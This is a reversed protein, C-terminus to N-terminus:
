EIVLRFGMDPAGISESVLQESSCRVENASNDFSGGRVARKNSTTSFRDFLSRFFGKNSSSLFPDQTWEWTNGSMDYLGQQNSPYYDVATIGNSIVENRIDTYNAEEASISGSRTGYAVNKGGARCAYEWEIGTPLRYSYESKENLRNLFNQIEIWSMNSVPIKEPINGDLGSIMMVDGWQKKTVPFKGVYFEDVCEEELQNDGTYFCGGEMHFFGMRELSASSYDLSNILRKIQEKLLSEEDPAELQVPIKFFNIEMEDSSFYILRFGELHRTKLLPDFVPTFRMALLFGQLEKEESYNIITNKLFTSRDQFDPLSLSKEIRSWFFGLKEQDLIWNYVKIQDFGQGEKDTRKSIVENSAKSIASTLVQINRYPEETDNRYKPGIILLSKDNELPPWNFASKSCSTIILPTAM